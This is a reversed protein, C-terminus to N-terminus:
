KRGQDLKPKLILTVPTGPPPLRDSGEFMRSELASASKIPVDLLATPLNLVCIFDGRDALYSKNGTSKDEWFTSGAFVWNVDLPKKTKIDRIWDQARTQQRKGAQDKWAVDIEVEAGTPPVFAPDYAVPKGPKAGLALLAAHVVSPKTYVVVASEYARDPYTAFFELPYGAKCTSGILVVAKKGSDLWIPSSKDLRKLGEPADVLPEGLNAPIEDGYSTVPEPKVAQTSAATRGAYGAATIAAVIQADPVQNRDAVVVAKKEALLVKVSQVGPVKTLAATVSEVCGQCSMGEVAFERASAASATGAVASDAPPPAGAQQATPGVYRSFVVAAVAIGAAAMLLTFVKSM